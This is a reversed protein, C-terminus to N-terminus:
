TVEELTNELQSTDKGAIIGRATLTIIVIAGGILAYISPVEKSFIFVWLPNLVPEIVMIIIAEIASVNKIAVSFFTYAIGLQFVGMIIIVLISTIDPRSQFIFPTLVIATIIHGLLITEVTSEGKQFRLAITVGALAVGGFIAIFNGLASGGGVDDLFFLIMGSAVIVISAWDYWHMKEKLIWVGLIAVFIPATFQLLVANAATTLKNSVVFCTVMTAYSVAGIIQAKSFIFKPKRLYILVVLASIYGRLGSIAFPNWDVFKILIGGTSLLTAAMVLYLISKSRESILGKEKM